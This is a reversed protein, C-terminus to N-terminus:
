PKLADITIDIHEQTPKEAFTIYVIRTDWCLIYGLNPIGDTYLCYVANARWNAPDISIYKNKNPSYRPYYSLVTNRRDLVISYLFDYLPMFKIDYIDYYFVQSQLFHTHRQHALLFSSNYSVDVWRVDGAEEYLDEATM